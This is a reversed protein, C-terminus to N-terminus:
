GPVSAETAQFCRIARIAYGDLLHPAFSRRPSHRSARKRTGALRSRKHRSKTRKISASSTQTELTRNSRDPDDPRVQPRSGTQAESCGWGVGLGLGQPRSPVRLCRGGCWTWPLLSGLFARILAMSTLDFTAYAFFGWFGGLAVARRLSEAELTPLVAFVLVGAIFIAYFLLAAAWLVDPRLLHGLHKQYFGAAVVGLWTLDIAFFVLAALGYLALFSKITM